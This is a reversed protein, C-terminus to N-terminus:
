VQLGIQIQTEAPIEFLESVIPGYINSQSVLWACLDARFLVHMIKAEGSNKLIRGQRIAADVALAMHLVPLSPTWIEKLLNGKNFDTRNDAKRKRGRNDRRRPEDLVAGVQALMKESAHTPVERPHPHGSKAAVYAHYQPLAQAAAVLRQRNIVHFGHRLIMESNAQTKCALRLAEPSEGLLAPDKEMARVAEGILAGGFRLSKLKENPHALTRLFTAGLELSAIRSDLSWM